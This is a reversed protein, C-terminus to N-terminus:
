LKSVHPSTKQSTCSRKIGGDDCGQALTHTAVSAEHPWAWAKGVLCRRSYGAVKVTNILARKGCDVFGSSCRARYFKRFGRPPGSGHFCLPSSCRKNSCNVGM